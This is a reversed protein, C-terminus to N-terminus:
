GGEVGYDMQDVTQGVLFEDCPYPLSVDVGLDGLPRQVSPDTVVPELPACLRNWVVEGCQNM